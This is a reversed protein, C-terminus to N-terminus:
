NNDCRGEDWSPDDWEADDAPEADYRDECAMPERVMPGHDQPHLTVSAGIGRFGCVACRYIPFINADRYHDLREDYTM